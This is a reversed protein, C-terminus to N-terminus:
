SSSDQPWVSPGGSPESGDGFETRLAADEAEMSWPACCHALGLARSGEDISRIQTDLDDPWARRLAAACVSGPVVATLRSM